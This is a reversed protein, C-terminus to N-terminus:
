EHRCLESLQRRIGGDEVVDIVVFLERLSPPSYNKLAFVLLELALASSIKGHISGLLHLAAVGIRQKKFAAFIENYASEIWRPQCIVEEDLDIILAYWSSQNIVLTGPKKKQTSHIATFLHIPHEERYTIEKDVTLVMNTDEEFVMVEISAPLSERTAVKLQVGSLFCFSKKKKKVLKLEPKTM